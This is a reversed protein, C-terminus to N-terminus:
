VIAGTLLRGLKLHEPGVVPPIKSKSGDATQLRQRTQWAGNVVTGIIPFVVAVALASHVLAM